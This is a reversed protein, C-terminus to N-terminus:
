KKVTMKQLVFMVADKMSPDTLPKTPDFSGLLLTDGSQAMWLDMYYGKGNWKAPDIKGDAPPRFFELPVSAPPMSFYGRCTTIKMDLFEKETLPIPCGSKASINRINQLTVVQGGAFAFANPTSNDLSMGVFQINPISSIYNAVIACSSGCFGDSFNILKDFNPKVKIKIEPTDLRRLAQCVDLLGLHYTQPLSKFQSARKTFTWQGSQSWPGAAQLVDEWGILFFESGILVITPKTKIPITEGTAPMSM